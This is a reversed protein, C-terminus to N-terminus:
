NQQDDQKQQKFDAEFKSLRADQSAMFNSVLGERAENTRSSAYEVFSQEPVEMCNQTDYQGSCIECSTIIKNVQTPQMPALHAEMLRQVQNKLETLRRDSTSLPCKSPISIKRSRSLSIEQTTRVKTSM